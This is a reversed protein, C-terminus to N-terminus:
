PTHIRIFFTKKKAKSILEKHELRKTRLLELYNWYTAKSLYLEVAKIM